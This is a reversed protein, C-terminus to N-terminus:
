TRKEEGEEDEQEDKWERDEETAQVVEDSPNEELVRADCYHLFLECAVISSKRLHNGLDDVLDIM